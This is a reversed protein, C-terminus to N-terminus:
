FGTADRYWAVIAAREEAEMYSLNAPPMAHSIGSQLYVARANRTLDAPTELAVGKPAWLLGAWVPEDAHCMSCRSTVIDHVEDFGQAEAFRAVREAEREPQPAVSLWIIAIFLLATAGWTWHPNG